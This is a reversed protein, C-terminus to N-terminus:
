TLGSDWPFTCLGSKLSFYVVLIVCPVLAYRFPPKNVGVFQGSHKHRSGVMDWGEECAFNCPFNDDSPQSEPMFEQMQVQVLCPVHLCVSKSLLFSPSVTARPLHRLSVVERTQCVSQLYTLQRFIILPTVRIAFHYNNTVRTGRSLLEVVRLPNDSM